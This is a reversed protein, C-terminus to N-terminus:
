DVVLFLLVGIADTNRGPIFRVESTHDSRLVALQWIGLPDDKLAKVNEWSKGEKLLARPKAKEFRKCFRTAAEMGLKEVLVWLGFLHIDGFRAVECGRTAQLSDFSLVCM